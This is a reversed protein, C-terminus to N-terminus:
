DGTKTPNLIANAIRDAIWTEGPWDDSSSAGTAKAIEACRQREALIARAIALYIEYDPEVAKSYDCRVIDTAIRYIDDPIVPHEKDPSITM